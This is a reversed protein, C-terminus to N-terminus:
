RKFLNKVSYGGLSRVSVLAKIRQWRTLGADLSARLERVSRWLQEVEVEDPNSPSFVARDAVSALM